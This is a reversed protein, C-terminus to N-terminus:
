GVTAFSHRIEFSSVEFITYSMGWTKWGGLIAFSDSKDSIERGYRGSPFEM